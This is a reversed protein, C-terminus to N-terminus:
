VGALTGLKLVTNWNRGTCRTELHKDVAAGTLKSIGIGAGYVIYLHRSGARIKEPGAVAARLAEVKKADPPRKLLMVVLHAPARVAEARFPNAEIVLQWEAASRVFCDTQVGLHEAVETQFLHELQDSQRARCRFVLNGSQLASQVDTFGLHVLLNRLDAM